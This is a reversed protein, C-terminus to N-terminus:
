LWTHLKKAQAKRWVTPWQARLAVRLDQEVEVLHRVTPSKEPDDIARRLWDEAMVTDQHDGLV